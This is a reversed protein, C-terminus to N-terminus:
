RTAGRKDAACKACRWAVGNRFLSGRTRLSKCGCMFKLRLDMGGGGSPQQATLDKTSTYRNVRQSLVNNVIANNRM